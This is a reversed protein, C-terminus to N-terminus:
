PQRRGPRGYALRSGDTAIRQAGVAVAWRRAGVAQRPIWGVLAAAPALSSLRMVMATAVGRRRVDEAVAVEHVELVGGARELGYTFGLMRRDTLTALALFGPEQGAARVRDRLDGPTASLREAHDAFVGGLHYWAVQEVIAGGPLPM